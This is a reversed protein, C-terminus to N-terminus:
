RAWFPHRKDIPFGDEGIDASYGRVEIQQKTRNHCEKCLSQVKGFVFRFKDGDVKEIHDVVSAREIKGQAKCMRCLPEVTLQHRAFNKWRTRQYWRHTEVDM